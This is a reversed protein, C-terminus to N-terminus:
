FEAALREYNAYLRAVPHESGNLPESFLIASWVIKHMKLVTPLLAVQFGLIQEHDYRPLKM